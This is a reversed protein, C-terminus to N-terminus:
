AAARKRKLFDPLTLDDAPVMKGADAIHDPIIAAAASGMKRTPEGGSSSAQQAAAAEAPVPSPAAQPEPFPPLHLAVDGQGDATASLAVENSPEQPEIIEGTAPDIEDRTAHTRTPATEKVIGIAPAATAAPPTEAEESHEVAELMALMAWVRADHEELAMRAEPAKRKQRLKVADRWAKFDDPAVSERVNAFIDKKADNATKIEADHADIQAAASKLLVAREIM